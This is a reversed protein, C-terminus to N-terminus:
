SATISITGPMAKSNAAIATNGSPVTISADLVGAVDRKLISVLEAHIVDEGIPLESLYATLKTTASAIATASDYGSLLTLTGTVNVAVESAAQVVVKAGAAKYGSVANGDADYYGDIIKQAETVLASSTAGAGNHIYLNVLGIPYTNPNDIWPEETKVYKVLESVVGNTVITATKAGYELAAKTGRALTAIYEQFRSKREDDTEADRGNTFAAPNTVSSVGSVAAVLETITNPDVNGVVGPTDCYALIDVYTQGVAIQSAARTVYKRTQGPVRVETGAPISVAQGAVPAPATFRILGYAASASLKEFGFSTYTAVEIGEVLGHFMQQYLEDIEMAPAEVLTRAV